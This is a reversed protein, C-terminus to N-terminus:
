SAHRMTAMLWSSAVVILMDVFQVLIFITCVNQDHKCKRWMQGLLVLSSSWSSTIYMVPPRSTPPFHQLAHSYTNRLSQKYLWCWCFCPSIWSEQSPDSLLSTVLGHWNASWLNLEKETCNTYSHMARIWNTSTYCQFYMNAIRCCLSM